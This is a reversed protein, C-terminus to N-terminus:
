KLVTGLREAQQLIQYIVQPSCFFSAPLTTETVTANSGGIAM